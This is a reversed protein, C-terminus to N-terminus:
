LHGQGWNAGQWTSSNIKREIRRTFNLLFIIITMIKFIFDVADFQRTNTGGKGKYIVKLEERIYSM